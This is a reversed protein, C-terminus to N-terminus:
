EGDRDRFFELDADPEDTDQEGEFQAQQLLRQFEDNSMSSGALSPFGIAAADADSLQRVDANAM